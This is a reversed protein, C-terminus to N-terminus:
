PGGVGMVAPKFGRNQKVNAESKRSAQGMCDHGAGSLFRLLWKKWKGEWMITGKLTEIVTSLDLNLLPSQVGERLQRDQECKIHEDTHARSQFSGRTELIDFM